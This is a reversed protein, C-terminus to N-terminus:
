NGNGLDMVRPFLCCYKDGMENEIEEAEVIQLFRFMGRPTNEDTSDIIVDVMPDMKELAIRLDIVKM